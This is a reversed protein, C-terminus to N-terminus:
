EIYSNDLFITFMVFYQASFFRLIVDYQMAIDELLSPRGETCFMANIDLKMGGKELFWLLQRLVIFIFYRLLKLLITTSAKRNIWWWYLLLRFSAVSFALTLYSCTFRETKIVWNVHTIYITCNYCDFLSKLISLAPAFIIVM